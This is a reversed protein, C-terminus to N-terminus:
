KSLFLIAKPKMFVFNAVDTDPVLWSGVLLYLLCLGFVLLALLTFVLILACQYSAQLINQNEFNIMGRKDHVWQAMALQVDPKTTVLLTSSFVLVALTMWLPWTVQLSCYGQCCYFLVFSFANLQTHPMNYTCMLLSLISDSRRMLLRLQQLIRLSPLLWLCM